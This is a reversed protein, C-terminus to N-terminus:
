IVPEWGESLMPIVWHAKFISVTHTWGWFNQQLQNWTHGPWSAQKTAYVKKATCGPTRGQCPKLRTALDQWTVETRGRPQTEKIQRPALDEWLSSNNSPPLLSCPPQPCLHKARPSPLHLRTPCTSSTWLPEPLSVHTPTLLVCLTSSLNTDNSDHSCNWRSKGESDAIEGPPRHTPAEM